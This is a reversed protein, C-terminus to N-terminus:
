LPKVEYNEVIARSINECITEWVDAHISTRTLGTREAVAHILEHLETAMLEIPDEDLSNDLSITFDKPDFLGLNGELDLKLIPVSKGFINLVRPPNVM